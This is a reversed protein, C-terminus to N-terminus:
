NGLKNRCPITAIFDKLYYPEFYATNEFKKLRFAEESLAAMNKASYSFGGPFFANRHDIIGRCKESGDGFFLVRNKTLLADFTNKEIVKAQVPMIPERRNNFVAMYVEMRRADIMPCYLVQERGTFDYQDELHNRVAGNTMAELTSTGILPGGTGYCLGKAVSVGIRLGTYSGPGKSVAVADISEPTIGAEHFIEQIFVTLLAAHSKEDSSEKFAVIKEDAALAVSCIRTATDINLILAM